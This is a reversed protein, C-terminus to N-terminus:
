ARRVSFLHAVRVTPELIVTNRQGWQYVEGSLQDVVEVTDDWKFGLAPMNLDTEGVLVGTPELCVVVLVVDGTPRDRRSYCLLSDSSIGHFWLGSLHQM